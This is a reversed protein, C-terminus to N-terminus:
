QGGRPQWRALRVDQLGTQLLAQRVAQHAAADGSQESTQLALWWDHPEKQLALNTRAAKWAAAPQGQLWLALLARERAHADLGEGRAVIAAFRAELDRALPQWAADGMLRLAQARRLLVADSDPQHRLVELAASARNRRLLQDAYALATYGDPADALSRRYAADAADDRGAREESEALLSGIWARQTADGAAQQWLATLGSRAADHQGQLSRTELLCATAYLTAGYRAVNRCAAEAAEYRAAVRELTALTLWGQVQAPNSQLARELTARAAAFEHRGQEVTAQLVLLDAPADAQGWWRELAAQARGLYRPDATERSLSIWRRAITAAAQPTAPAAAVREPLREVVGADLGPPLDQPLAAAATGAWFMLHLAACVLHSPKKM